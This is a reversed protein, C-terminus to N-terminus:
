HCMGRRGYIGRRRGYIGRRRGYIGRRRGYIGRRRKRRRRRTKLISLGRVRERTLFRHSYLPTYPHIPYIPHISIKSKVRRSIFIHM